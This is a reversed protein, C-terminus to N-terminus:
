NEGLARKLSKTQVSGGYIPHEVRETLADLTVQGDRWAEWAADGMIGRQVEESQSLFWQQGNTWTPSDRGELAPIMVCRCNVHMDPAEDLPYFQGDALLCALCTRRSKAAIRKWGRVIGSQRYNELTATRYARMQETRAIRLARQLAGTLGDAMARATKRPNWGLAVGNFLAESMAVSSDGWSTRLLEEIPAGPRLVAAISEAAGVNLRNFQAALATDSAVIGQLMATSNEVGARAHWGVGEEIEGQAYGNFRDIEVRVQRLLDRYRELRFYAESNRGFVVGAAQQRAVDDLLAEIDQLLRREAQRWRQTMDAAQAAERRLLAARYALADQVIIPDPM